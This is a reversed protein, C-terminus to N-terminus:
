EIILGVRQALHAKTAAEFEAPWPTGTERALRRAMPLFVASIAANGALVSALNAAVPALSELQRRQDATLLRNLHLVGGRDSPAIRNEELMLDITLRRLIEMGAQAMLWEERGVAVVLLGLVRLFEHIIKLLTAPSPEYPAGSPGRPPSHVGKNFLTTLKAADYRVLDDPEAFVIDFRRWDITVVNLIRGDFLPNVLAPPAISSIGQAYRRGVDSASGRGVLAVVDVDSFADGGGDGLSGALWAAEIDLDASLAAGIADLLDQQEATLAM